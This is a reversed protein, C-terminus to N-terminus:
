CPTWNFAAVPPLENEGARLAPTAAFMASSFCAHHEGLDRGNLWVRLGFQAKAFRLRAVPPVAAVTFTRRYWFYDRRPDRRVRYRSDIPSWGQDAVRLGAPRPEAFRALGPV